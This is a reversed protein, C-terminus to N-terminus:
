PTFGFFLRLYNEKWITFDHLTIFGDCNFDAKWTPLNIVWNGCQTSLYEERWISYDILNSKGDCNADGVSKANGKNQCQTCNFPSPLTTPSPKFTPTPTVEYIFLPNSWVRSKGSSVRVRIYKESGNATYSSSTKNSDSKLITARNGIFEINSSRNTTAIVTKGSVTVNLQLDVDGLAIFASYFNGNKLNSMIESNALLNSNVRVHTSGCVNTYQTDHCDDAAIGWKKTGSSLIEDWVDEANKQSLAIVANFIEIAHYRQVSNIASVPWGGHLPAGAYAYHPHNLISFGGEALIGDILTQPDKILNIDPNSANIRGMHRQYTNDVVTQEAGPFFLIGNVKPDQSFELNTYTDNKTIHDTISIFNFGLNKYFSVLAQPSQHGDSKNTHTHLQGKYINTKPVYPSNIAFDKAYISFNFFSSFLSFLFAFKLIKKLIKNM